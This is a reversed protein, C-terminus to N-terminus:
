SGVWVSESIWSKLLVGGTTEWRRSRKEFRRQLTTCRPVPLGRSTVTANRWLLLIDSWRYFMFICRYDKTPMIWIENHIILELCKGRAQGNDFPSLTNLYTLRLANPLLFLSCVLRLSDSSNWDLKSRIAYRLYTRGSFTYFIFVLIKVMVGGFLM